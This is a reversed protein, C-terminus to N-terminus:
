RQYLGVLTGRGITIGDTAENIDAATPKEPLELPSSLAFLRFMYRHADDGPPPAPGGWGTKGFDNPWERGDLPTAGEPVGPAHPDIGTVLWHLFTGRPADPDECMLVLEVADGPVGIWELAPSLNAGDQSHREPIFAHDDFASSRLEIEEM